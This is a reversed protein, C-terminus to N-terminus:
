KSQVTVSGSSIQFIKDVNDLLDLHHEVVIITINPFHKRIVNLISAYHMEDINSLVEDLLLYDPNQVLARLIRLRQMSGSNISGSLSNNSTKLGDTLRSLISFIDLDQMLAQYQEKSIINNEELEDEITELVFPQSSSVYKITQHPAIMKTKPLLIDDIYIAGDYGPYLGSISKLLLTKGTGNDGKLLVTQGKLINLYDVYLLIRSGSYLKFDILDIGNNSNTSAPVVEDSHCGDVDPANFYPDIREAHVKRIKHKTILNVLSSLPSILMSCYTNFVVLTGITMTGIVVYYSGVILPVFCAVSTIVISITGAFNTYMVVKKNFSGIKETLQSFRAVVRRSFGYSIITEHNKAIDNTNALLGENMLQTKRNFTEMRKGIHWIWIIYLPMITLALIALLPNLAFLMVSYAIISVVSNIVTSLITLDIQSLNPIDSNVVVMLNGEDFGGYLPHHLSNDVVSCRTQNIFDQSFTSTMWANFRGIILQIVLVIVFSVIIPTLFQLDRNVLVDDIIYRTLLPIPITIAVSASLGVLMLFFGLKNQKIYAKFYKDLM